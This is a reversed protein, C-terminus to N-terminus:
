LPGASLLAFVRIFFIFRLNGSLFSTIAPHMGAASSLSSPSIAGSAEKKLGWFIPLITSIASLFDSVTSNTLFPCVGLSLRGLILFFLIILMVWIASPHVPFQEYQM